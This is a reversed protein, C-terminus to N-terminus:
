GKGEDSGHRHPGQHGAELLCCPQMDHEKAYRQNGCVKPASDDGWPQGNLESIHMGAHGAMRKCTGKKGQKGCRPATSVEEDWWEAQGARHKGQHGQPRTCFLQRDSYQRRCRVGEACTYWAAGQANTHLGSHGKERTCLFGVAHEHGCLNDWRYGKNDASNCHAGGHGEPLLCIYGSVGEHHSCVAKAKDVGWYWRGDWHAGDHGKPHKCFLNHPGIEKCEEVYQHAGAHGKALRCGDGLAGVYAPACCREDKVLKALRAENKCKVCASEDVYPKDCQGEPFFACTPDVRGKLVKGPREADKEQHALIGSIGCTREDEIRKAEKGLREDAAATKESPTPAGLKIRAQDAMSKPVALLINDDEVVILVPIGQWTSERAEGRMEGGVHYLADMLRWFRAVGIVLLGVTEGYVRVCDMMAQAVEERGQSSM